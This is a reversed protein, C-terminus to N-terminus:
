RALREIRLVQGRWVENARALADDEDRGAIRGTQGSSLYVIWITRM